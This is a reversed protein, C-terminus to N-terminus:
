PSGPKFREDIMEKLKIALKKDLEHLTTWQEVAENKKGIAILIVGLNFHAGPFKPQLEIVKQFSTIAEKVRDQGAYVVGLGLYARHEKPNLRAAQLYYKEADAYRTPKAEFAEKAYKLLAEVQSPTGTIATRVEYESRDPRTADRNLPDDQRMVVGSPLQARAVTSFCVLAGGVLVIAFISQIKSM